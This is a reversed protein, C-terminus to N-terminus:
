NLLQMINIKTQKNTQMINIKTQKQNPNAPSIISGSAQCLSPLCQVVLGHEWFKQRKLNQSLAKSHQGAQAKWLQLDRAEAM